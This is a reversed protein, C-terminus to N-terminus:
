LFVRLLEPSLGLSAPGESLCVLLLRKLHTTKGSGSDGLIVVGRRRRKKAERFAEGLTVDQLGPRKFQALANEADAFHSDGSVRLNVITQLLVYAEKLDIAVRLETKFGLYTTL